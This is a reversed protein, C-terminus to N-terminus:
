MGAIIQCCMEERIPSSHWRRPSLAAISPASRPTLAKQPRPTRGILGLKLESPQRGRFKKKGIKCFRKVNTARARVKRYKLKKEKRNLTRNSSGVPLARRARGFSRRGRPRSGGLGRGAGGASRPGLDSRGSASPLPGAPVARPPREPRLPRRPPPRPRAPSGTAPVAGM